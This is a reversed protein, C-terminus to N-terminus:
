GHYWWQNSGEQTQKWVTKEVYVHGEWLNIVSRTEAITTRYVGSETRLYIGLFYTFCRRVPWINIGMIIYMNDIINIDKFHLIM